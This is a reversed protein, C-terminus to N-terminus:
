NPANERQRQLKGRGGLLEVHEGGTGSEIALTASEESGEGCDEKGEEVGCHEGEAKGGRELWVVCDEEEEQEAKEVMEDPCEAAQEEM